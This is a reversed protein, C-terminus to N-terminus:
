PQTPAPPAETAPAAPPTALAKREQDLRMLCIAQDLEGPDYGFPGRGSKYAVKGEADILYLRDPFASYEDGTKNDITDVLMPWPHSMIECCRAAVIDREADSKPQFEVINFQDNMSMRWGDAPHAERIYVTFFQAVDQHKL